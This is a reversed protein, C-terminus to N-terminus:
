MEGRNDLDKRNYFMWSLFLANVVIADVHNYESDSELDVDQGQMFLLLHRLLSDVIETYVLGKKWNNRSYKKEGHMLCKVAGNLAEDFEFLLSMKLKDKNDRDGLVKSM